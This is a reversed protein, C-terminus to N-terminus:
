YSKGYEYQIEVKDGDKGSRDYFFQVFFGSIAGGLISSTIATFAEPAGYQFQPEFFYSSFGYLIGAWLAGSVAGLIWSPMRKQVDIVVAPIIISFVVLWAPSHAHLPVQVGPAVQESLGVANLVIFFVAVLTAGGIDPIWRTAFVITAAFLLAVVGAGWFGALAYPSTPQLPAALFLVLSLIGALVMSGFLRVANVNTDRRIIPLLMAFSGVIAVILAVHPPSWVILPSSIDEIGFTRHWLEDFPASLPVLTLLVALRRWLKERTRYWGYVGLAIACIVSLYLLLHPPSFFTERGLAGHWWADWTGAVVASFLAVSVFRYLTIQLANM